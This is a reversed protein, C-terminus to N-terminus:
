GCELRKVELLAEHDFYKAFLTVVGFFSKLVKTIHAGNHVKADLSRFTLFANMDAPELATCEQGLAIDFGAFRRAHPWGPDGVMKNYAERAELDYESHDFVVSVQEEPVGEMGEAVFQICQQFCLTRPSGVKRRCKDETMIERYDPLLIGTGIGIPKHRKITELLNIVFADRREHTWDAFEKVLNYCNSAHYRTVGPENTIIARWEEELQKWCQEDCLWGAVVFVREYRQDYSEDFYAKFLSPAEGPLEYTPQIAKTLM